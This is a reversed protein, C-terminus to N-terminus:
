DSGLGTLEMRAAAAYLISPDKEYDGQGQLDGFAAGAAEVQEVIAEAADSAKADDSAALEGAEAEIVRMFGWADHYEKVNALTGGEVAIAYEDAAVRTLAAFSKLQDAADFNTRVEEHTQRVKGFMEAIKEYPEEAEAAAALATIEERLEGYGLRDLRAAVAEYKEEIPHGMHTKAASLDGAEYLALGARLHGEMFALDTLFAVDPALGATGGEGEGGSGAASEGEGEGGTAPAGEGEGAAAAEAEGEGEGGTGATEGEGEDNDAAGEAALEPPAEGEATAEGEGTSAPAQASGEGEGEAQAVVYAPVDEARETQAALPTGIAVVAVGGLAVMRRPAIVRFKRTGTDMM